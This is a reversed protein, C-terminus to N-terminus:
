KEVGQRECDWRMGRKDGARVTLELAQIRCDNEHFFATVRHDGQSDHMLLLWVFIIKM